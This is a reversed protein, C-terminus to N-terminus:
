TGQAGPERPKLNGTSWTGQAELERPELNGPSWTGQAEPERPELNGQAEPYGYAGTCHVFKNVSCQGNLESVFFDSNKCELLLGLIVLM